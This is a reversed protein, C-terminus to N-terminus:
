SRAEEDEDASSAEVVKSNEIADLIEEAIMLIFIGLVATCSLLSGFLILRYDAHKFGYGGFFLGLGMLIGFLMGAITAM